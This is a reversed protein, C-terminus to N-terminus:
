HWAPSTADYLVGSTLMRVDGGALNSTAIAGGGDMPSTTAFFVLRAEDPSLAFYGQTPVSGAGGPVAPIAFLTQQNSGDVGISQFAPAASGGSPGAMTAFYLLGKSTVIPAGPLMASSFLQTLQTVAAAALDVAYIQTSTTGGDSLFFVKADDSSYVPYGQSTSGVGSMAPAVLAAQGTGDAKIRYVQDLNANPTNDCTLVFTVWQGDHSFSGNRESCHAPDNTTLRKANSGDPKMTYLMRLTPNTVLGSDGVAFDRGSDFLVLSGDPSFSPADNAGTPLVSSTATTLPMRNSGDARM